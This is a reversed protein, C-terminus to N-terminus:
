AAGSRLAQIAEARVLDWVHDVLELFQPTRQV